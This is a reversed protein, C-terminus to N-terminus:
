ILVNYENIYNLLININKEIDLRANPQERNKFLTTLPTDAVNYHQYFADDLDKLKHVIHGKNRVLLKKLLTLNKFLKKLNQQPVDRRLKQMTLLIEFHNNEILTRKDVTPILHKTKTYLIKNLGQNCEYLSVLVRLPAQLKKLENITLYTLGIHVGYTNAQMEIEKFQHLKSCNTIICFDLDSWDDIFENKGASGTLIIAVLNDKFIAKIEQTFLPIIKEAENKKM